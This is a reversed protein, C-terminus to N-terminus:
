RVLEEDSSRDFTLKEMAFLGAKYGWALGRCEHGHFKKADEWSTMQFVEEKVSIYCVLGDRALSIPCYISPETHEIFSIQPHASSSLLSLVYYTILSPNRM